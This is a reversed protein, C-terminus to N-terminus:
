YISILHWTYRKWSLRSKGTKLQAALRCHHHHHHLHLCCRRCRCSYISSSLSSSYCVASFTGNISCTKRKWFWTFNAYKNTTFLFDEWDIVNSSALETHAKDCIAVFFIILFFLCVVSVVAFHNDHMFNWHFFFASWPLLKRWKKEARTRKYEKSHIIKNTQQREWDRVGAM